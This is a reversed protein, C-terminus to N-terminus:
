INRLSAARISSCPSPSELRHTDTHSSIQCRL